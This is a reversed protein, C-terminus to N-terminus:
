ERDSTRTAPNLDMLGEPLEVVIRKAIVDVHVVIGDAMPVMVDGHERAIILLSRELPGEVGTVRGIAHGSTDEVECGVLDHRYFTNAPLAGLADAPMKLEAGALAEADNMTEVGALAVIPRGDHFRVATIARTTSRGHAEVIVENGIAFRDRAFDTEPNVIVQGKNGHARAVRGVLLLEV